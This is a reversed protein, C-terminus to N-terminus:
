STPPMLSGPPAWQPIIAYLRGTGAAAGYGVPMTSKGRRRIRRRLRGQETNPAIRGPPIPTVSCWMWATPFDALQRRRGSWGPRRPERHRQRILGGPHRLGRRAM